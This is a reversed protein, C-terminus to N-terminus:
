RQRDMRVRARRFGFRVSLFRISVLRPPASPLFTSSRRPNLYLPLGFSSAGPQQADVHQVPKSFPLILRASGFAPLTAEWAVTHGAGVEVGVGFSSKRQARKRKAKNCSGYPIRRLALTELFPYM